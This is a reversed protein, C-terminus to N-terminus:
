FYDKYFRNLEMISQFFFEFVQNLNVFNEDGLMERMAYAHKIAEILHHYFMRRKTPSMKKEEELDFEIYFPM